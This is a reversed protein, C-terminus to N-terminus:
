VPLPTRRGTRGGAARGGAAQSSQRVPAGATQNVDLLAILRPQALQGQGLLQHARPHGSSGQRGHRKACVHWAAVCRGYQCVRRLVAAGGEQHTEGNEAPTREM